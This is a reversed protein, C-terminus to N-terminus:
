SRLFRAVLFVPGTSVPSRNVLWDQPPPPEIMRDLRLGADSLANLYTSLMRHNTGVKQRLTSEFHEPPSRWWGEDRYTGTPSWSASIGYQTQDPIDPTSAFHSVGSDSFASDEASEGAFEPTSWSNLVYGAHAGAYREPSSFDPGDAGDAEVLMIHAGPPWPTRGNSMSPPRSRGGRRLRHRSTTGGNQDVKTFCGAGCLPLGWYASTMYVDLAINPDDYAYGKRLRAHLVEGTSARTALLPHYGLVKTYGYADGQKKDGHVEVITSDLDITM